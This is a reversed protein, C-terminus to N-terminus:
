AFLAFIFVAQTCHLPSYLGSAFVFMFYTADLRLDACALDCDRDSRLAARVLESVGPLPGVDDGSESRADAPKRQEDAAHYAARLRHDRLHAAASGRASHDGKLVRHHPGFGATVELVPHQSRSTRRPARRSLLVR